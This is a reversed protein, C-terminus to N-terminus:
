HQRQHLFISLIVLPVIILSSCGLKSGHNKMDEWVKTSSEAQTSSAAGLANCTSHYAGQSNALIWDMAVTVRAYVGPFEPLACGVGWSVVGVLTQRGNELLVLPGGSDGQCSDKGPASACLMTESIGDKYPQPATKCAANSIVTVNAEQLIAPIQNGAGLSGWGTVTAVEVTFTVTPDAPLCVPSISASFAIPSVLRLIAFDNDYTSGNYMPHILVEAVELKMQEEDSIDNEGVIVKISSPRRGQVCHAATLIETESILSGGCWPFQGNIEIGVQWPYEQVDADDGGVIRGDGEDNSGKIGCPCENSASESTSTSAKSLPTAESSIIDNRTILTSSTQSGQTGPYFGNSFIVLFFRSVPPNMRVRGM